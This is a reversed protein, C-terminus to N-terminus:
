PNRLAALLGEVPLFRLDLEALLLDRIEHRFAAVRERDGATEPRDSQLHGFRAAVMDPVAALLAHERPALVTEMVADVRALRAQAPSGTALLQDQLEGRLRGAVSQIARQMAQVHQQFFGAAAASPAPGPGAAIEAALAARADAAKEEWPRADPLQGGHPAGAPADLARSLEVARPWDIWEGLRTAVSGPPHNATRGAIRAFMRAIAPAGVSPIPSSQM